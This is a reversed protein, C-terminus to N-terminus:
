ETAKFQKITQQIITWSITHQPSSEWNFKEALYGFYMPGTTTNCLAQQLHQIIVQNHLHPYGATNLPNNCFPLALLSTDM